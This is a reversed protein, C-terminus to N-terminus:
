CRSTTAVRRRRRIRRPRWSSRMPWPAADCATPRRPRRRRAGRTAIAQAAEVQQAGDHEDESDADAAVGAVAARGGAACAQKAEAAARQRKRRPKKRERDPAFLTYTPLSEAVGDLVTAAEVLVVGRREAPLAGGGPEALVADRERRLREHFSERLAIGGGRAADAAAGGGDGGPPLEALAPTVDRAIERM